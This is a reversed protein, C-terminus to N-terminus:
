RADLVEKAWDLDEPTNLGVLERWDEITVAEVTEGAQILLAIINTLYRENSEPHAGIRPLTRWLADAQFVYHSSLYEQIRRQEETANREEVCGIVRGGYGRLVRGYPFHREFHATLFTCASGTTRHHQLLRQISDSTLLPSDGVTVLIEKADPLLPQSAEVAGATGNLVPQLVTEIEPGLAARVRAAGHGVVVVNKLIGAGRISRLLHHIIPQEALPVLAKPLHSRMRSGKGAAMVIAATNSRTDTDLMGKSEGTRRPKAKETM